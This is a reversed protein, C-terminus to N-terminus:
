PGSSIARLPSVPDGGRYRVLGQGVQGQAVERVARGQGLGQLRRRKGAPAQAGAQLAVDGFPRAKGLAAPPHLVGGRSDGGAQQMDPGALRHQVKAGCGAALGQLERRGAPQHRRHVARRGALDARRFIQLAGAQGGFQDRGVRRGPRIPAQEVRNQQVRRAAGGPGKAPMGVHQPRRPRAVYGLQRLDLRSQEVARRLARPRAPPQQIAHAGQLRFLALPLDSLEQATM